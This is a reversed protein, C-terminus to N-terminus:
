SISLDIKLQSLREPDAIADIEVVKGNSVTFAMVSFLRGNVLVVVGAAGNVLVPRLVATPLAAAQASRGIVEAEDGRRPVQSELLIV